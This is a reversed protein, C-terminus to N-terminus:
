KKFLGEINSVIENSIIGQERNANILIHNVYKNAFEIYYNNLIEHTNNGLKNEYADKINQTLRNGHFVFTLDPIINDICEYHLYDIFYKSNGKLMCQYVLTSLHFRDCLIIYGKELYPKIKQEYHITRDAMFLLLEAKKPIDEKTDLLLSRIRSGLNTGGPERTTIVKYNADTLWSQLLKIQTSKGLDDAGEFVIFKGFSM